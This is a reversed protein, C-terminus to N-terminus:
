DLEKIMDETEKRDYKFRSVAERLGRVLDDNGPQIHLWSSFDELSIAPHDTGTDPKEGTLNLNLFQILSPKDTPVVFDQRNSAPGADKQTGVVEGTDKRRYLKM